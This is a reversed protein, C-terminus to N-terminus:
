KYCFNNSMRTITPNAWRMSLESQMYSTSPDIGIDALVNLKKRFFTTEVILTPSRSKNWQWEGYVDFVCFTIKGDPFWVRLCNRTCWQVLEYKKMKPRSLSKAHSKLKFFFGCRMGPNFKTYKFKLAFVSVVLGIRPVNLGVIIVVVPVCWPIHRLKTVVHTEFDSM